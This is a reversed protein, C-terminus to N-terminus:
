MRVAMLISAPLLACHTMIACLRVRSQRSLRTAWSRHKITMRQSCLRHRRQVLRLVCRLGNDTLRVQCYLVGYTYYVVVTTRVGKLEALAEIASKLKEGALERLAKASAKQVAAESLSEIYKMLAPRRGYTWRHLLSCLVFSSIRGMVVRLMDIYRVMQGEQAEM